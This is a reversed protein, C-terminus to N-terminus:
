FHRVWDAVAFPGHAARLSNPWLVRVGGCLTRRVDMIFQGMLNFGFAYIDRTGPKHILNATWVKDAWHQTMTWGKKDTVKHVNQHPVLFSAAEDKVFGGHPKQNHVKNYEILYRQGTGCLAAALKANQSFKAVLLPEWILRYLDAISVGRTMPSPALTKFIPSSGFVLKKAQLGVANKKLDDFRAYKGGLCWFKLTAHSPDKPYVRVAWQYAQETSPFTCVVDLNGRGRVRLTVPTAFFNSFAWGKGGKSSFKCAYDLQPGKAWYQSHCEYADKKVPESYAARFARAGAEAQSPSAVQLLPYFGVAPAGGGGGGSQAHAKHKPSGKRPPKPSAPRQAKHKPSAPRQAKRKPSAAKRKPKPRAGAGAGTGYRAFADSSLRGLPAWNRKPAPAHRAKARPPSASLDIVDSDSDSESDSDDIIILDSMSQVQAILFFRHDQQWRGVPAVRGATLAGNYRVRM